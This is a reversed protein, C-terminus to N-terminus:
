TDHLRLGCTPMDRGRGSDNVKDPHGSESGCKGFVGNPQRGSVLPIDARTTGGDM